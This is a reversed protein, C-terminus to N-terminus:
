NHEPEEEDIDFDDDYNDTDKKQNKNVKSQSKDWFDDKYNQSDNKSDKLKKAGNKRKQKMM